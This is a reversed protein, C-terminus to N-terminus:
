AQAEEDERCGDLLYKCIIRYYPDLVEGADPDYVGVKPHSLVKILRDIQSRSIGTAKEIERVTMHRGQNKALFLVLEMMDNSTSSIALKAALKMAHADVTPLGVTKEVSDRRLVTNARVFLTLQSRARIPSEVHYVRLVESVKGTEEDRWQERGWCARLKAMLLALDDLDEDYEHPIYVADLDDDTVTEMVLDLFRSVVQRLMPFARDLRKLQERYMRLAARDDLDFRYVLWRSGINEIYPLVREWVAPTVAAVVVTDVIKRVQGGVATSRGYEGDYISELAAFVKRTNERDATEESLTPIIFLKNHIADILPPVDQKAPLLSAPTFNQIWYVYRSDYLLKLVTTKLSSPPAVVVLWPPRESTRGKARNVIKLTAAITLVVELLESPIEGLFEKTGLVVKDLVLRGQNIYTALLSITELAITELGGEPSLPSHPSLKPISRSVLRRIREVRADYDWRGIASHILDVVADVHAKLFEDDQSSIMESVTDLDSEAVYQLDDTSRGIYLSVTIRGGKRKRSLEFVYINPPYSIAFVYRTKSVELTIPKIRISDSGKKAEPGGGSM